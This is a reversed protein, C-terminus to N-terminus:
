KLKELSDALRKLEDDQNTAAEKKDFAGNVKLIHEISKQREEIKPSYQKKEEVLVEDTKPDLERYIFTQPEGNAISKSLLLAEEVTMLRSKELEKLRKQIYESIVLKSLNETAIRNATKKSYGARIASQTANGTEIYYDAFKKQKITM